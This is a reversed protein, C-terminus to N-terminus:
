KIHLFPLKELLEQSVALQPCGTIDLELLQRLQSFTGPLQKL